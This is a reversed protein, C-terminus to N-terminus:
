VVIGAAKLEAAFEDETLIDDPNKKGVEITVSKKVPTLKRLSKEKVKVTKELTVAEDTTPLPIVYVGREDSRFEKREKLWQPYGIERNELTSYNNWWATLQRLTIKGTTKIEPYSEILLQIAYKQKKTMDSYNM